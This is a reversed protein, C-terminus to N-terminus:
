LWVMLRQPGWSNDAVIEEVWQQLLFRRRWEADASALRGTDHESLGSAKCVFAAGSWIVELAMRGHAVRPARAPESRQIQGLTKQFLYQLRAQTESPVGRTALRRLVSDMSVAIAGSEEKWDALRIVGASRELIQTRFCAVSWAAAIRVVEDFRSRLSALIGDTVRGPCCMEAFREFLEAKFWYNELSHGDTIFLGDISPLEVEQIAAEFRFWRFERDVLGAFRTFGAIETLRHVYEVKERNSVVGPVAEIIEATDVDVPLRLRKNKKLRAILALVADQDTPGEVLLTRASSRQRRM